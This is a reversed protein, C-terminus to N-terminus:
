EEKMLNQAVKNLDIFDEMALSHFFNKLDTPTKGIMIFEYIHTSVSIKKVAILGKKIEIGQKEAEEVLSIPLNDNRYFKIDVVQKGM